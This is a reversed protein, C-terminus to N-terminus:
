DAGTEANSRTDVLAAAKGCAEAADSYQKLDLFAYALFEYHVPHRYEIQAFNMMLKRAASRHKAAALARVALCTAELHIARNAKTEVIKAYIASTLDLDGRAFSVRMEELLKRGVELREEKGLGEM